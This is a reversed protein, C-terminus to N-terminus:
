FVRKRGYGLIGVLGCGLFLMTAPETASTTVIIDDVAFGPATSILTITNFPPSLVGTYSGEFYGYMTRTGTVSFIPIDSVIGIIQDAAIGAIGYKFSFSTVPSSFTITLNLYNVPWNGLANGNLTQFGWDAADIVIFGAPDGNSSFDASMGNNTKTFPTATLYFPPDNTVPFGDFNFVATAYADITVLGWSLVFAFIIIGILSSKRKM